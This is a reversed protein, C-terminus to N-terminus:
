ETKLQNEIINIEDEIPNNNNFYKEILLLQYDKLKKMYQYQINTPHNLKRPWCSTCFIANRGYQKYSVFIICGCCLCKWKTKTTFKYRKTTAKIRQAEAIIKYTQTKSITIM